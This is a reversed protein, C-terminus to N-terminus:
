KTNDQFSICIYRNNGYTTDNGRINRGNKLIKTKEQRLKPYNTYNQLREESCSMNSLRLTISLKRISVHSVELLQLSPTSPERM